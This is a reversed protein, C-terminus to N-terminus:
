DWFTYGSESESDNNESIREFFHNREVAPYTLVTGSLMAAKLSIDKRMM